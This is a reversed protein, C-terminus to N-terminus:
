DVITINMYPSTPHATADKLVEGTFKITAFADGIMATDGNPTLSVRWIELEQNEGAPNDSVFRLKGEIQNNNFANIQTYNTAAYGYTVHITSADVIAGGDAVPVVYIRGIADDKLTTDIIYDDGVDYTITDAADQVLLVGPVWVPAANSTATKTAVTLTCGSSFAGSMIAIQINGSNVKAITGSGISAGSAVVTTGAVFPGNTVTGHAITFLGISRKTLDSRKGSHAVVAEKDKSGATQTVATIDGLTLLALNEKNIEDLEFSISPTIESIISKDKAKLGGRSSFHELKTLAVSFAFAPANGLDREGMYLGTAINKQDFFIVGKGLTYNETNPSTAM